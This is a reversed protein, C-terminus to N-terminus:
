TTVAKGEKAEKAEKAAEQAGSKARLQVPKWFVLLVLVVVALIATVLFVTSMSDAFSQRIPDSVSSPLSQLVTTDHVANAAVPSDTPTLGFWLALFAALGIAGGIQRFFTVAATSVGMDRAPLINQMVLTLPQSAGGLGLGFAFTLFLLATLNEHGSLVYMFFLSLATILASIISSVRYRGTRSIIQGSGLTGVFSGAIGPLLLVGARTSSANLVVQFYQSVLTFVGILFAGLIFSLITGQAFQVNRFVRLPLLANEGMKKEVFLFGLLGVVFVAFCIVSGTSGWGWQQGFQTVVLLPVLAVPLVLSGVWDISRARHRPPLNLVKFVIALAALGLPVNILFSWRWGTIGAIFHQSAFFGGILPGIVGAITFVALFYGQYRARQRPAVIDGLITFALVSLGGAGLGQVARFAALEPMSTAVACAVSGVMFLSIAFLYVPKRGFIDSLKGYLLMVLTSAILYATTVWAQQSYGGFDDAIVRISTTTVTQDIAILFIGMLLGSIISLIQKHSLEAPQPQPNQSPPSESV